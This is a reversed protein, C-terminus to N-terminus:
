KGRLGDDGPKLLLCTRAEKLDERMTSSMAELHAIQQARPKTPARAGQSSFSIM